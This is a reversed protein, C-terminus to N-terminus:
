GVYSIEYTIGASSSGESGRQSSFYMRQYSPDFAPGTIESRPHGIVQVIPIVRDDPTLAILQMNGGDEAVIVDGTASIVVNDVGSLIPTTSTAFDYVVDLQQTIIDYSWVRNDHKTTFYVTNEYLGIGEGGKFPYADPAQKRTPTTKALPDNVKRWLIYNNGEKEVVAAVELQGASLDPLGNAPRFRYFGGDPLDETLYLCQNQTDVLVAEHKFSGLAPRVAAPKVGMPDCEYVQGVDFEECSLWTGWPTPGGACNVSTDDLIRYADVLDGSSNFRLAGVGGQHDGLESNSTYVWGGDDSPFCAGGDPASHWTYGPLGVPAEGSRAVIKSKFGAPLMVGNEDPPLLDGTNLLSAFPASANGQAAAEQFRLVGGAAFMSMGTLGMSLFKRRKIQRRNM